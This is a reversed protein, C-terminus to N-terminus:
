HSEDDTEAVKLSIIRDPDTVSGNPGEGRKIADIHEMGDTVYGFVTYSGNLHAADAFTIFFQSNASDPDRARAMGLTGRKFEADTFEAELDPLDSGGTGTGLPDGTQAMFGEIVRHFTLGNYFGQEVLALIREVHNPALDPRLQITVPGDKLQMTLYPLAVDEPAAPRGAKEDVTPFSVPNTQNQWFLWGGFLVVMCLVIVGVVRERPTAPTEAM